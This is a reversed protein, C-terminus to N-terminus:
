NCEQYATLDNACQRVKDAKMMHHFALLLLIALTLRMVM